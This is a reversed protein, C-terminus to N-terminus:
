TCVMANFSFPHNEIDPEGAFALASECILGRSRVMCPGVSQLQHQCRDQIPCTPPTASPLHEAGTDVTCHSGNWGVACRTCPTVKMEIGDYLQACLVPLKKM